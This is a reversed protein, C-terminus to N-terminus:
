RRGELQELRRRLDRVTAYLGPEDDALESSGLIPRVTEGSDDVTVEVAVVSDAVAVTDTLVTVEDGVAYAEPWSMGPVDVADVNWGATRASEALLEDGRQDLTNNDATDRADRFTEVRRGWETLSVTDVRARTVRATGEGSGAVLAVNAKPAATVTKSTVVNGYARSLKVSATRDVPARVLLRPMDNATDADIVVNGATALEEIEEGLNKFRTNVRVTSGAFAKTLVGGADLFEVTRSAASAQVNIQLRCWTKGTNRTRFAEAAWLTSASVNAALHIDSTETVVGAQGPAAGAATTNFHAVVQILCAGSVTVRGVLTAMDTTSLDIADTMRFAATSGSAVTATNGSWTVTGSSVDTWGTATKRPAVRVSTGVRSDILQRPGQAGMGANRCVLRHIIFEAPGSETWYSAATQANLSAEPTPLTLRDAPLATDTIGSVTLVRGAESRDDEIRTVYGATVTTPTPVNNGVQEYIGNDDALDDYDQGDYSQALEAYTQKRPIVTRTIRLRTGPQLAALGSSAPGNVQWTGGRRHRLVVKLSSWGTIRALRASDADLADLTFTPEAVM